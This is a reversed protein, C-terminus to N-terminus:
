TQNDLKRPAIWGLYDDLLVIARSDKPRPDLELDSLNKFSVARVKNASRYFYSILDGSKAPYTKSFDVKEFPDKGKENQFYGDQELVLLLRQHLEILSQMIKPYSYFEIQDALLSATARDEEDFQEIWSAIQKASLVEQNVKSYLDGLSVTSWSLCLISAAFITKNM